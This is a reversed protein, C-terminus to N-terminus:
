SRPSMDSHLANDEKQIRRIVCRDFHDPSKLPQGNPDFNYSYNINPLARHNIFPDRTSYSIRGTLGSRVAEENGVDTIPYRDTETM